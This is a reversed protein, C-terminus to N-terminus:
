MIDHECVESEHGIFTTFRTEHNAGGSCFSLHYITIISKLNSPIKGTHFWVSGFSFNLLTVDVGSLNACCQDRTKEGSAM